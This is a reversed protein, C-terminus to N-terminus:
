LCQPCRLVLAYVGQEESIEVPFTVDEHEPELVQQEELLNVPPDIMPLMEEDMATTIVEPEPTSDRGAHALM